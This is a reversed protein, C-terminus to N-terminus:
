RERNNRLPNFYLLEREWKALRNWDRLSCKFPIPFPNVFQGLQFRIFGLPSTISLWLKQLRPYKVDRM